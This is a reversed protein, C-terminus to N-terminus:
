HGKTQFYSYIMATAGSGFLALFAVVVAATLEKQYDAGREWMDIIIIRLGNLAHFLLTGLLAVEVLRFGFSEYLAHITNYANRGWGVAAVDAIHLLLFALIGIGTIRHLMFVWMGSKGRYIRGSRSGSAAVTPEASGNGDASELEDDTETEESDEAEEAEGAEEAEEAEEAM